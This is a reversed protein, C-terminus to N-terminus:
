ILLLGPLQTGQLINTINNGADSFCTFDSKKFGNAKACMILDPSMIYTNVGQRTLEKLFDLMAVTGKAFKNLEFMGLASFFVVNNVGVLSEKFLRITEEGIDCGINEKLGEYISITNTEEDNLDRVCVFDKPLVIKNKSTRTVNMVDYTDRNDIYSRGIDYSNAKLFEFSLAGGVILKHIKNSYKNIINVKNVLKTGGIIFNFRTSNTLIKDISNFEESILQGYFCKDPYYKM